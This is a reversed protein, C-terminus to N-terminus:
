GDNDNDDDVELLAAAIRHMLEFLRKDFEKNNGEPTVLAKLQPMTSPWAAIGILLFLAAATNATNSLGYEKQLVSVREKYYKRREEEGPLDGGDLTLAEWLMLRLLEPAREHTGHLRDIIEEPSGYKVGKMKGHVALTDVMVADFLGEKSGFNAYIREKNAASISAIRNIRAGAPGYRSFEARAADLIRRRTAEADRM